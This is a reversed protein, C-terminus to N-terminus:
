HELDTPSSPEQAKTWEVMFDTLTQSKIAQRPVYTIDHGMLEIAWTAICRVVDKGYIIEGLPFSTVVRISHSNFYHHLKRSTILIAYLLKKVQIYRTKADALVENIFYIPRQVKM